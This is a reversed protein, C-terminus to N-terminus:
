FYCGSGKSPIPLLFLINKNFLTVVDAASPVMARGAVVGSMIAASEAASEPNADLSRSRLGNRMRVEKKPPVMPRVLLKSRLWGPPPPAGGCDGREGGGGGCDGTPSSPGSRLPPAM